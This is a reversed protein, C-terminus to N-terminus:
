LEISYINKESLYKRVMNFAEKATREQITKRRGVFNNKKIIVGDKTKLGIYVLGVPKEETGDPGAIGTVSIAIDISGRNYLGEAMERAVEESVAGYKKLSDESVNLEEVKARNSYTVISRDFVESAGELAVLTSAILGGTCSECFAIKMKNQKLNKYISEEINDYSLTYIYESYRQYIKEYINNLKDEEKSILKVRVEGLKSYTAIYVGNEERILDKIGEELLSEGIGITKIMKKYIKEESDILPVVEKKFLNLMEGPPGPLLIYKIGDNELFYGPATGLDNKLVISDEIIYAQKKNNPSPKTGRNAFFREISDMIKQDYILDKHNVEAVIEKTFDDDTPGLGGTFIIIDVKKKSDEILEKLLDKNDEVSIHFKVEIGLDFLRRSLTQSNINLTDGSTLETGVNIIAALM